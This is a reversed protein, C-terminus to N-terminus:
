LGVLSSSPSSDFTCPSFLTKSVDPFVFLPGNEEPNEDRWQTRLLTLPNSEKHTHTHTNCWNDNALLLFTM